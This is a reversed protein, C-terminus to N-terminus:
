VFSWRFASGDRAVYGASSGAFHPTFIVAHRDVAFQLAWWRSARAEDPFADFAANWDPRHAQVPHHMVDGSFFATEGASSFAISAHAISHGPTSHFTFGEVADSGDIDIMDALGTAIIPDVSDQQVLFSTQNRENLNVPNTFYEYERRSFVYRANPFTPTWRGGDLRTNWGVHDVHLHTLLVLDVDKPAVGAEALRELYPTKLHDFYQAHPRPKHNGAGTDILITRGRDRVLWSHISLLVHERTADMSEAPVAELPVSTQATWEPIVRTREFNPLEVDLIRTIEADGVRFIRQDCM